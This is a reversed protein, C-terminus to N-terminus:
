TEYPLTSFCNTYDLCPPYFISLELLRSAQVVCLFSRVIKGIDDDNDACDYGFESFLGLTQKNIRHNFVKSVFGKGRVLVVGEDVIINLRVIENLTKSLSTDHEAISSLSEEGYYHGRWLVTHGRHHTQLEMKLWPTSNGQMKITLEPLDYSPKKGSSLIIEHYQDPHSVTVPFVALDSINLHNCLTLPMKPTTTKVPKHHNQNESLIWWEDVINEGENDIIEVNM